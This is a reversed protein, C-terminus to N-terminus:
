ERLAHCRGCLPGDATLMTDRAPTVAGCQACTVEREAARRRADAEAARQQAAEAREEEEIRRRVDSLRAALGGDGILGAEVLIDSLVRVALELETVRDRLAEVESRPRPAPDPLGSPWPPEDALLPAPRHQALISRVRSVEAGTLPAGGLLELLLSM